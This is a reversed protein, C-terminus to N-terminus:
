LQPPLPDNQSCIRAEQRDPGVIATDLHM